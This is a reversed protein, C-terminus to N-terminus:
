PKVGATALSLQTMDAGKGSYGSITGDLAISLISPWSNGSPLLSSSVEPNQGGIVNGSFGWTSGAWRNLAASGFYGGSMFVPSYTGANAIANDSFNFGLAGSGDIILMSGYNPSVMGITNRAVRIDRVDGSILLGRYTADGGVSDCWNNEFALRALAIGSGNWGHALIVACQNVKRIINYRITLDATQTWPNRADSLSQLNLGMGEQADSWSNEFVNGEVLVRQAHKLELLNKVAWGMGRYSTPKYVYNRRIEIDGPSVNTIIPDAGGFLINISAAELYNNVIKFPGPGAWGAVAHTETGPWHIDSLYSDILSLRSGNFIIGNQTSTSPTGHLYVRDFIIDHPLAALSTENEGLRVLGYNYNVSPSQPTATIEVGVIRWGCSGNRALFVPAVTPSVIKPFAAAVAPTVRVGEAPPTSGRVVIWGGTVCGSKAPLEFNGSYTAGDALVIQSGPTASNLAAQLNGGAPVNIVSGTPASYATNLLVRPLEPPAVPSPPSPPPTWSTTITVASTDAKTGGTHRAIVQFNGAVSGATYLGAATITGGTVTWTVSPAVSSGDSWSGTAVFQQTGGTQLTATSPNLVLQNLVVTAPITIVSTDAKTGGTHTVIVRYTGGATGATFVGDSSVTGGTASFSVPPVTTTGDSWLASVVFAQTAGQPVTVSSPNLVLQTLTAAEPTADPITVTSTDAKGTAAHSAIVQYTGPTPGAIYLGAATISGGTAVFSVPPPSTAGDSWVGTVSFVQSGGPSLTVASPNLHLQTLTASPASVQPITVSATDAAGCGCQAIVLFTGAVTGATYLGNQTITGGASVWSINSPHAQGDSWSLTASFQRTQGAGLIDSSPTVTFSQLQIAPTAIVTVNATDARTGNKKTAIVRYSGPTNGARYVGGKDITGGTATWIVAPVSTSGVAVVRFRAQAGVQITTDPAVIIDAATTADGGVEMEVTATFVEGSLSQLTGTVPFVGPALGATYTGSLSITGGEASWQVGIPGETGDSRLAYATVVQSAEFALLASLPTLRLSVVRPLITVTSTDAKGLSSAIVRFTGPTSGATYVGSPSVSGGTASWTLAPVDHSGDTWTAAPVFQHSGGSELMLNSQDLLLQTLEAPTINGNAYGVLSGDGISATVSYANSQASATFLGNASILGGTASWQVTPYMRSGNGMLASATFQQQTGAALAAGSPTVDLRVIGAPAIVTILISDRLSASVNATARVLFTGVGTAKFWGDASVPAGGSWTVPTVASLGSPLWGVAQLRVSDGQVLQPDHPSISLGIFSSSPKSPDPGLYDQTTGETCGSLLSLTIALSAPVLALRKALKHLFTM